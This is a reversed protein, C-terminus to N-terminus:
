GPHDDRHDTGRPILADGTQITMLANEIPIANRSPILANCTPILANCAPSSPM